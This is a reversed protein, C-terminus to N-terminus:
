ATVKVASCPRWATRVTLWAAGPRKRARSSRRTVRSRMLALMISGPYIPNILEPMAMRWWDVLWLMRWGAATVISRLKSEDLAAVIM